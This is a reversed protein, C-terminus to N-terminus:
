SASSYEGGIKSYIDVNSDINSIGYIYTFAEYIFFAKWIRRGDFEWRNWNRKNQLMLMLFVWGCLTTMVTIRGPFIGMFLSPLGVIFVCYKLLFRYYKTYRKALFDFM